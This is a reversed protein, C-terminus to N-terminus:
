PKRTGKNKSSRYWKNAKRYEEHTYIHKIYVHQIQFAIACIVRLNNGAVDVVYWGNRCTFVDISNAMTQKLEHFDKANTAMLQRYARELGPADNPHLAIAEDFKRRSVVNM